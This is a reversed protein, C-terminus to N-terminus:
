AAHKLTERLGRATTGALNALNEVFGTILEDMHVFSADALEPNSLDIAARATDRKFAVMMAQYTDLSGPLELLEFQCRKTQQPRLLRYMAQDEQKSTWSRDVLIAASAEPM